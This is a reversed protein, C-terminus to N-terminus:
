SVGIVYANRLEVVYKIGEPLKILKQDEKDDPFFRPASYSLSQPYKNIYRVKEPQKIAFNELCEFRGVDKFFFLLKKAPHM